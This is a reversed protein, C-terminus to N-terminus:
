DSEHNIEKNKIGIKEGLVIEYSLSIAGTPCVTECAGTYECAALNAIFVRNDRWALVQHPCVKVCLECGICRTPDIQPMFDQTM